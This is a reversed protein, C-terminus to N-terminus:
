NAIESGLKQSNKEFFLVKRNFGDIVNQTNM